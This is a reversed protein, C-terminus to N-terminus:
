NVTEMEMTQRAMRSFSLLDDILTRMKIAANRIMGLYRQALDNSALSAESALVEAFGDIHRLPARVDHSVSYSFAALESNLAQLEATRGKGRQELAANSRTIEANAAELQNQRHELSAAMVDFRQALVHLESRPRTIGTRAAPNGHILQ